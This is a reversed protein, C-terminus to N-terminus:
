VGALRHTLVSLKTAKRADSLGFRSRVMCDGPSLAADSNIRLSPYRQIWEPNLENLLVADRPCLTLELGEREPFLQELADRCLQEVREPPPEYGALLRTAIDVALAPLADRIQFLLSPEIEALKKLVGDSLQEMDHRFEVMQQDAAARASDVGQRYATQVKETVEIESFIRAQGPLVAGALTRDFAILKTFPM